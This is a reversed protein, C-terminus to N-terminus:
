SSSRKRRGGVDCARLLLATFFSVVPRGRLWGQPGHAVGDESEESAQRRLSAGIASFPNAVLWATLLDALTTSPRSAVLPGARAATGQYRGSSGEPREDA